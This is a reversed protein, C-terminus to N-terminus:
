VFYFVIGSISNLIRRFVLLVLLAEKGHCSFFFAMWSVGSYYVVPIGISIIIYINMNIYILTLICYLLCIAIM